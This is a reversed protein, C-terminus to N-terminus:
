RSKNQQDTQNSETSIEEDSDLEYILKQSHDCIAVNPSQLATSNHVDVTTLIKNNNSTRMHIPSISHGNITTATTQINKAMSKIQATPIGIAPSDGSMLNDPLTTIETLAPKAVPCNGFVIGKQKENTQGKNKSPDNDRMHKTTESQAHQKELYKNKRDDRQQKTLDRTLIVRKM